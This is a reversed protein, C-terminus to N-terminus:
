ARRGVGAVKNWQEYNRAKYLVWWWGTNGFYVKIRNDRQVNRGVRMGVTAWQSLTSGVVVRFLRLGGRGCARICKRRQCYQEEM